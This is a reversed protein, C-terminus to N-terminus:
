PRPEASSATVYRIAVVLFELAGSFEAAGKKWEQETAGAAVSERKTNM